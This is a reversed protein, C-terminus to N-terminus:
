PHAAISTYPAGPHAGSGNANFTTTWAPIDMSGQIATGQGVAAPSGGACGNTGNVCWTNKTADVLTAAATWTFGGKKLTVWDSKGNPKYMFYTVFTESVNVGTDTNKLGVAPADFPSPGFAAHSSVPARFFLPGDLAVNPTQGYGPGVSPTYSINGSITQTIAISGPFGHDSKVRYRLAMAEAKPAANGWRLWLGPADSRKGISIREPHSIMDTVVDPQVVNYNVTATPHSIEQNDSRTLTATANVHQPGNSTWFMALAPSHLDTYSLSSPPTGDLTHPKYIWGSPDWAFNSIRYSGHGGHATAVLNSEKGIATNRKVGGSVLPSGAMDTDRVDIHPCTNESIGCLVQTNVRGIVFGSGPGTALQTAYHLTLTGAPVSGDVSVFSWATQGDGIPQPDYTVKVGAPLNPNIIRYTSGTCTTDGNCHLTLGWSPTNASGQVTCVGNAYCQDITDANWAVDTADPKATSAPRYKLEFYAKGPAPASQPVTVADTDPKSACGAVALAAFTALALSGVWARGSALVAFRTRLM